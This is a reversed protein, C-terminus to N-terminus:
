LEKNNRTLMVRLERTTKTEDNVLNTFQHCDPCLLIFKDDSRKTMESMGCSICWYKGGAFITRSNVILAQQFQHEKHRTIYSTNGYIFEACQRCVQTAIKASEPYKTPLAKTYEYLQQEYKLEYQGVKGNNFLEIQNGIDIGNSITAIKAIFRLGLADYSYISRKGSRRIVSLPLLSTLSPLASIEEAMLRISDQSEDTEIDDYYPTRGPGWATSINGAVSRDTPVVLYRIRVKM